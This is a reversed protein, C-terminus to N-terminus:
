DSIHLHFTIKNDIKVGLLKVLAMSKLVVDNINLIISTIQPDGSLLGDEFKDAKSQVFNQDLWTVAECSAVELKYM